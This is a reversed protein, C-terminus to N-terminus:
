HRYITSRWSGVTMTHMVQVDTNLPSDYLVISSYVPGGFRQSASLRVRDALTSRATISQKATSDFRQRQVLISVAGVNGLEHLLSASITIIPVSSM